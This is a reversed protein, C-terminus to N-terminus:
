LTRALYRKVADIAETASWCVAACYNADTYYDLFAQQEASVHNPKLKMELRLGHFEGAPADLNLDLAGKRVGEAKLMAGTVVNRAGGNPVAYLIWEPLRYIKHALRWWDCVAKQEAHETTKVKLFARENRKREARVEDIVPAAMNLKAVRRVKPQQKPPAPTIWTAPKM